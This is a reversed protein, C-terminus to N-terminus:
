MFQNDEQLWKDKTIRSTPSDTTLCNEIEVRTLFM